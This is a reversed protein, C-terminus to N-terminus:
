TRLTLVSTKVNSPNIALQQHITLTLQL